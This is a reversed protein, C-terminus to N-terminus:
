YMERDQWDSRQVKSNHYYWETCNAKALQLQHFIMWHDSQFGQEELLDWKYKLTMHRHFSHMSCTVMCDKGQTNVSIHSHAMERLCVPSSGLCLLKCFVDCKDRHSSFSTGLGAYCSHAQVFPKAYDHMVRPLIFDHSLLCVARVYRNSSFAYVIHTRSVM